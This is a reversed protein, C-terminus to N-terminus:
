LAMVPIAPIFQTVEEKMNFIPNLKKHLKSKRIYLQQTHWLGISLRELSFIIAHQVLDPPFLQYMLCKAQLCVKIGQPRQFTFVLPFQTFLILTEIFLKGKLRNTLCSIQKQPYRRLGRCYFHCTTLWQQKGFVLFERRYFGNIAQM